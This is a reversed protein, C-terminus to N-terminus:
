KKLIRIAQYSTTDRPHESVGALSNPDYISIVQYFYIPLIPMQETMVYDEAQRLKELRGAPDTELEADKLMQDYQPDALGSDNNGDGGRFLNLFTTPDGYDGTWGSRAIFFNGTNRRELITKWEQALLKVKVGLEEEWMRGVAQAVEEHGGGVNYVLEIEPFGRGGPYGAEALLKRAKDPDYPLGRAAGYGPISQPPTMVDAPTQRQRTVKETIAKKDICITLAKRLRPDALPNPRGDALKPRCNFNYFYTGFSSYPHIDKRKGQVKERMFEPAFKVAQMGFCLDIAGSHYAAYMTSPDLYCVFDISKPGVEKQNWYYDNAEFRIDRKFRWRTMRYAGNSIMTAPTRDPKVWQPDRRLMCTSMDLKIMPELVHRPLPFLPWTGAIELFYPIRHDTAVRLTRSDIVKVGVTQNYIRISDELRKRAALARRGLDQIALTQKLSEAGWKTFEEGGKINWLFTIYPGGVDPMMALRWAWHFDDATVPRGDSWKAEPRIHFTYVLGDPSIEWRSAQGPLVEFTFPEFTTLGEFLGYLMRIDEQAQAVQPDLTEIATFSVVLDARPLPRDFLVSFFLLAILTLIPLALRIM